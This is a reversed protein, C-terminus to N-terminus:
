SPANRVTRDQAGARDGDARYGRDRELGVKIPGPGGEGPQAIGTDVVEDDTIVHAEETAKADIAEDV